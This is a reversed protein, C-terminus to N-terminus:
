NSNRSPLAAALEPPFPSGPIHKVERIDTRRDYFQYVEYRNGFVEIELPPTTEWSFCITSWYGKGVEPVPCHERAFSVFERVNAITNSDFPKEVSATIIREIEADVAKWDDGGQM